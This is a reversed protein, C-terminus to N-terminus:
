DILLKGCAPCKKVFSGLIMGCKSCKKILPKLPKLSGNSKFDLDVTKIQNNQSIKPETRTRIFEKQSRQMVKAKKKDPFMRSYLSKRKRRLFPGVFILFAFLFILFIILPTAGYEFYLFFLFLLILINFILLISTLILRRSSIKKEEKVEITAM